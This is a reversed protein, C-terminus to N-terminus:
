GGGAYPNLVMQMFTHIVNSVLKPILSVNAFYTISKM